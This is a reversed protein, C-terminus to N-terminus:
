SLRDPLIHLSRQHLAQNWAARDSRILLIKWCASQDCRQQSSSKWFPFGSVSQFVEHCIAMQDNDEAQQIPLVPIVYMDVSLVPTM